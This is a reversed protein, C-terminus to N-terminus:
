VVSKRDGPDLYVGLSYVEDVGGRQVAGGLDPAMSAYDPQFLLVPAALGTDVPGGSAGLENGLCVRAPAGCPEFGLRGCGAAVVLAAGARVIM